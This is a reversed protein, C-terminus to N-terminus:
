LGNVGKKCAPWVGTVLDTRAASLSRAVSPLLALLGLARRSLPFFSFWAIDLFSQGANAAVATSVTPTAAQPPLSSLASADRSPTEPVIAAAPALEWSAACSAHYAFKSLAFEPAVTEYSGM